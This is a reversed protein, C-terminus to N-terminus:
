DGEYHVWRKSLRLQVMTLIFVILFLFWAMAAARGMQLYRFAYNFLEYVYFLTSNVPGGQTMIFAQIFIQFTGILGMILNFFIYPSLMPLTVHVFKDLTGAGDISAAEYYSESIAKLGALWIIIGGGAGWLGMIILSIKSTQEDQLWNPGHLGVSGLIINFLGNSPNLIQMWLISSAVLPIISPMYFLTRWVAVGKVETNLLLALALSLAMGLPIGIIMYGTNWLCKWFLPDHLFLWLYNDVGILRPDKIVDYSCFSILISFVIPGGTFVIFGVIWPSALIWGDKWQARLFTGKVGELERGMGLLRRGGVPALWGALTSRFGERTDWAYVLLVILVVLAVYPWLFWSWRVQVGKPPALGLDLQRQVIAAGQDLAEQATQKHFIANEMSTIQQHWLLQGVMTVPRFRAVSILDNFIRTAQKIKPDTTPDDYVYTKALWANIAKNPVQRPVFSRGQSLDTLRESESM